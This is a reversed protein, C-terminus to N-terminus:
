HYCDSPLKINTMTNNGFIGDNQIMFRLIHAGSRKVPLYQM